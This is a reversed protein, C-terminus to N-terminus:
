QRLGSVLATNRELNLEVLEGWTYIDSRHRVLAWVEPTVILIDDGQPPLGVVSTSAVTDVPISVNAVGIPNTALRVERVHANGESEFRVADFGDQCDILLVYPTLNRIM